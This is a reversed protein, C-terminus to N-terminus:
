IAGYTSVSDSRQVSEPGYGTWQPDFRQWVMKNYISEKDMLVPLSYRSCTEKSV